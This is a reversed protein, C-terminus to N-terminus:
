RMVLRTLFSNKGLQCRSQRLLRLYDRDNYRIDVFRQSSELLLLLEGLRFVPLFGAFRGVDQGVDMQDRLVM